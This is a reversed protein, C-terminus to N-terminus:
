PTHENQSSRLTCVDRQCGGPSVCPPFTSWLASALHALSVQSPLDSPPAVCMKPVRSTISVARVTLRCAGVVHFLPSWSFFCTPTGHSVVRLVWLLVRSGAGVLGSATGSGSLEM